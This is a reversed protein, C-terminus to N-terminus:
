VLSVKQQQISALMPGTSTRLLFGDPHQVIDQLVAAGMDGIEVQIDLRAPIKQLALDLAQLTELSWEQASILLDIDSSRTTVAIKTALEFGVSGTPGWRVGFSTFIPDIMQFTEYLRHAPEIASGLEFPRIHKVIAEKPLFAGYRENRKTGRLGIPVLNEPTKMRRVVAYHQCPQQHLVWDPVEGIFQVQELSDFYVIDHAKLAM